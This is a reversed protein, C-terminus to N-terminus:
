KRRRLIAAFGLVMGFFGLHRSGGTACGVAEENAGQLWSLACPESGDCNQDIGDGSIESAEPNIGADNDDCDQGGCDYSVVGDGDADDECGELMPIKEWPWHNDGTAPTPSFSLTKDWAEGDGNDEPADVRIRGEGGDGGIARTSSTESNSASRGAKGGAGDVVGEGSLAQTVILIQGGAGAGGAGVEGGTIETGIGRATPASVADQGNQGSADLTGHIAVGGYAFIMVAGGGDGGDGSINGSGAGDEEVDPSGGAGGSGMYWGTLLADGYTDGGYASIEGDNSKGDEGGSGYGGGAGCSEQDELGLPAGGGGDNALGVDSSNGVAEDGTARFSEGQMPDYANGVVGLGGRYGMARADVSGNITVTGSARFILVGGSVGDWKAPSLSGDETVTVDHFHPVRLVNVVSDASFSASLPPELRLSYDQIESVFAMAYTGADEGQQSLVLVEDGPAFLDPDEVTIAPDGASAGKALATSADLTQADSVTLDGDGGFGGTPGTAISPNYPDADWDNRLGDGDADDDECNRVKDGDNDDADQCWDSPGPIPDFATLCVQTDEFCAALTLTLFPAIRTM